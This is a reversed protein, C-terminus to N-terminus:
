ILPCSPISRELHLWTSQDAVPVSLQGLEERTLRFLPVSFMQAGNGIAALMHVLASQVVELQDDVPDPPIHM